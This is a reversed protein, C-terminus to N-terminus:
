LANAEFVLFVTSSPSSEKLFPIPPRQLAALSQVSLLRRISSITYEIIVRITIGLKQRQAIEPMNINAPQEASAATFLTDAIVRITHMRWREPTNAHCNSNVMLFRDHSGMTPYQSFLLFFFSPKKPHNPPNRVLPTAQKLSQAAKGHGM